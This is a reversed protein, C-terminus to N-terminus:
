KVKVGCESRQKLLSSSIIEVNLVFYIIYIYKYQDFVGLFKRTTYDLFFIMREEEGEECEMMMTRNIQLVDMSGHTAFVVGFGSWM